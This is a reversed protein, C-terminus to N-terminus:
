GELRIGEAQILAGMEERRQRLFAAFAEPGQAAPELGLSLFRPQLDPDSMAARVAAAMRAVPEAPTGAPAYIAHFDFISFGPFGSEAVTPVGPYARAREPTSAVLPRIAGDRILGAITPITSFTTITDGRRISTLQDAGGRYPIHTAQLGARRMLLAGALHAGTGVGSSGYSVAGPNARAHALFGQFDRIPSEGRVILLGPLSTAQTVPTFATTYDFGLGRMLHLNTTAGGADLAFTTGDPAAQAVAAMAVAGNAGGRNELVVTHGLHREIAPAILRGLIDTSGGPPFTVVLRTMRQQAIAPAALPAAAALAAGATLLIRRTSM